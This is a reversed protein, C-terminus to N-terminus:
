VTYRLLVIGSGGNASCGSGGACCGTGGGGGGTNADGSQVGSCTNRSSGNGGGGAGGGSSGGTGGSGGGGAYYGGDGSSTASAWTSLNIGTGGPSGSSGAQSPQQSYGGGGASATFPGWSRGGPQGQGSTGAGGNYAGGLDSGGGGGGSGGSLGNNRFGGAHGGGVATTYGTVSSNGGGSGYAGGAGVTVTYSGANRTLTEQVVGGGGGGGGVEPNGPSGGGAVIVAEVSFSGGTPVTFTGSSTFKHYRYGGSDTITGGTPLGTVTRTQSTTSIVNNPTNRVKITVTTGASLNYVASPTSPTVTGGSPTLGTVTAVLSAGNYYLADITTTTNSVTLTLTGSQGQYITGSVGDISPTFDQITTNESTSSIVGDANQIKVTVTTGASLGYVASPTSVAASGSTADVGTVTAVLSAGNYYLVSIEPTTQSFTLTLSGTLGAYITGSLGSIIPVLATNVWQTGDYFEVTGTTTNFRINGSDPSGPRQDTTGAPLDFYGTSGTDADYAAAGLDAATLTYSGLATVHGYTDLTVDQIVTAGSNNVSSQNSTDAHSVTVTGSTGGGSIGGGATVGTIDGVNTTYGADNNFGSIAINGKTLKKQAGATDVVAFYDGDGDSTSTTLENLDLNVTVTGSTGGGSLGTGATVGEIDGTNTTYGADNNFGSININGKTLKRSVNSADVVAFFDGDGDTTSTSLESLDVNFTITENGSQNTTFDGGGSLGTGASLTITADNIVATASTLGTVHGFGDLTVDQIFTNGSNNVSAQSSTDSHALGSTEQTLGSGAAVSFETGTLAIGSGASYIAASSIQVFTIDTTGFTITGETNMVYLEGAGTNGEQVFFADGQGLSDPDSPAYSDADTARTLVWNTSGSGVNTVTYVGNQTADTQEYILVRDDVDVTVGDLVLAAQTGANTLTAGVGATGNNYTVTLPGPEEVRVPLHYHLSASAVTDVYQKTAAQLDASPDANLVLNGSMTGGSTMLAGAAAVNTADTVDAGAEIGDLKSGDSAIDRGDVTGSVTINGNITAAAFTPSDTTAVGQDMDAADQLEEKGASLFVFASGSLNLASGGNSSETVTRTLTTGSATYTGTGIEWNTGDEIVYRVTNGDSVGGEAFTQYGQQASGLTITGTGTTATSVRVRNALVPM